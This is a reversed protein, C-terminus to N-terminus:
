STRIDVRARRGSSKSGYYPYTYTSTFMRAEEKRKSRSSGAGYSVGAVGSSGAPSCAADGLVFPDDVIIRHEEGNRGIIDGHPTKLVIVGENGKKRDVNDKLFRMTQGVYLNRAAHKIASEKAESSTSTGATEAAVKKTSSSSTASECVHAVATSIQKREAPEPAHPAM